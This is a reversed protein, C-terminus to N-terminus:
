NDLKLTKIGENKHQTLAGNLSARSFQIARSLYQNIYLFAGGKPKRIFWKNRLGFEASSVQKFSFALRFLHMFWYIQSNGFYLEGNECPFYHVENVRGIKYLWQKRNTQSSHLVWSFNFFFTICFKPPLCSANHDIHFHHITLFM